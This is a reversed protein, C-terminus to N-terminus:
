NASGLRGNENGLLNLNEVFHSTSAALQVHNFHTSKQAWCRDLLVPERM